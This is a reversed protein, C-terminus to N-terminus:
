GALAAARLTALDRETADTSAVGAARRVADLNAAVAASPPASAAAIGALASELRRLEAEEAAIEVALVQEHLAAADAGAADRLVRRVGRLPRVVRERWDRVAADLAGVAGADLSRGAAGTCAAALLLDCDLGNADQLRICADAVGPRSWLARASGVLGPM